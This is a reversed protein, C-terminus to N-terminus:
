EPNYGTLWNEAILMLDSLGVTGNYDIDAGNCWSPHKCSNEWESALFTFDEFDVGYKTEITTSLGCTKGDTPIVKCRIQDGPQYLDTQLVDSHAASVVQRVPQGNVFWQYQYRVIDYDLDDLVPDTNIHCVIPKSFIPIVSEFALTVTQPARNFSGSYSSVAEFPADILQTGNIWLVFRWTGYTTNGQFKGHWYWWSHRYNTQNNFSGSWTTWVSNNPKYIRIVYTSNVPLSGALMVWPYFDDTGTVQIDRPFEHPWSISALDTGSIGFDRVYTETRKPIQFQWLSEGSRCPGAFPEVFHGNENISFEFHPQTSNGSSGVLGIQRGASVVQGASVAVSNKKMHWYYCIRGKGHDIIVYNAPKNNGTTNRDDEGDHSDIVTGNQVAFIPVGIDQEGFSRIDTDIGTHGDYTWDGCAWDRKGTSTDLDVYNNIFIDDFLTGGMPFFMFLSTGPPEPQEPQQINNKQYREIVKQIELRQEPSISEVDNSQIEGGGIFGEQNQGLIPNPFALLCCASVFIIFGRFQFSAM